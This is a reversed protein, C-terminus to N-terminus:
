CIIEYPRYETGHYTNIEHEPLHVIYTGIMDEITADPNTGHFWKAFANQQLFATHKPTILERYLRKPNKQGHINLWLLHLTRSLERLKKTESLKKENGFRKKLDNCSLPGEIKLSEVHPSMLKVFNTQMMTATHFYGAYPNDHREEKAMPRGFKISNIPVLAPLGLNPLLMGYSVLCVSQKKSLDTKPSVFYDEHSFIRKEAKLTTMSLSRFFLRNM